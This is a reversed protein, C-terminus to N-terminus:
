APEPAGTLELSIRWLRERVGSDYAEAVHARAEVLQDYFRGTIKTLAPDTIMRTTAEVGSAM